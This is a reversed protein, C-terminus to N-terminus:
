KAIIRVMGGLHNIPSGEFTASITCGGKKKEEALVTHEGLKPFSLAKTCIRIYEQVKM